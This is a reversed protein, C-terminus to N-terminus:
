LHASVDAVHFSPISITKWGRAIVIISREFLCHNEKPSNYFSHILEKAMKVNHICLAHLKILDHHTSLTQRPLACDKRM